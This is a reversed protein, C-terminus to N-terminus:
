YLGQIHMLSPVPIQGSLPPSFITIEKPTTIFRPHTDMGPLFHHNINSSGCGQGSLGQATGVGNRRLVEETSKSNWAGQRDHHGCRNRRM